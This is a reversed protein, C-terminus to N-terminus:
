PVINREDQNASDGSEDSEVVLRYDVEQSRYRIPHMLVCTIRQRERKKWAESSKGSERCTKHDRDGYQEDYRKRRNARLRRRM